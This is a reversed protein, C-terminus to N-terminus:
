EENVLIVKGFKSATAFYDYAAAADDLAFTRDIPVQMTGAALLPMVVQNMSTAIAAKEERSRARLTAGMVSARRTMLTLLDLDLRNGGGVGVIVVRAHLSLVTMAQTLHAAGVLEIVVDVPALSAVDDLTVAEHAGLAILEAHHRPDRTVAVVHGGIAAALQVAATGVGGNAGSILVREGPQIKAQTVLADFATTFTEAVGGAHV